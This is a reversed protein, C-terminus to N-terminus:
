LFAGCDIVKLFFYHFNYHNLIHKNEFSGEKILIFVEVIEGVYM